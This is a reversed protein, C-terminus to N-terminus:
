IYYNLYVSRIKQLEMGSHIILQIFFLLITLWECSNDNSKNKNIKNCLNQRCTEADFAM